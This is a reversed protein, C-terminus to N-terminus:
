RLRRARRVEAWAPHDHFDQLEVTLDLFDATLEPYRSGDLAELVRQMAADRDGLDAALLALQVLARTRFTAAVHGEDIQDLVWRLHTQAEGLRGEDRLVKGRILVVFVVAEADDPDPPLALPLEAHGLVLDATGADDPHQFLAIARARGLRALWGDPDVRRILTPRLSAWRDLTAAAAGAAV